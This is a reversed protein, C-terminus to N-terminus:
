ATRMDVCSIVSADPYQNGVVVRRLPADGDEVGQTAVTRRSRSAGVVRSEIPMPSVSRSATRNRRCAWREPRRTLGFSRAAYRLIEEAEVVMRM